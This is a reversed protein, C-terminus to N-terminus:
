WRDMGSYTETGRLEICGVVVKRSAAYVDYLM